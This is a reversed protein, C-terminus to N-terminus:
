PQAKLLEELHQQKVPERYRKAYPTHYSHNQLFTIQMANWEKESGIVNLNMLERFLTQSVPYFRDTGLYDLDSDCLICELINLPKQPIRTARIMGNIRAIEPDSYNWEPLINRAIRVSEEEHNISSVLYGTDHMLAATRLLYADPPPVHMRKIYQQCVELVSLTHHVRHYTLQDSLENELMRTIHHKLGAINKM